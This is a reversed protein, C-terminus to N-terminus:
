TGNWLFWDFCFIQNMNFKCQDFICGIFFWQNNLLITIHACNCMINQAIWHWTSYKSWRLYELVLISSYEERISDIFIFISPIQNCHGRPSWPIRQFISLSLCSEGVLWCWVLPFPYLVTAVLWYWQDADWDM